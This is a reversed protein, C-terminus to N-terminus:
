SRRWRVRPKNEDQFLAGAHAFAKWDSWASPGTARSDAISLLYLMSLRSVDGVTEACRQIFAMDNLDRRLANEPIFLHYEVLFSLCAVEEDSLAMRAGIKGVVEAGEECHDRGSGKGIDHFLAALFLVEKMEVQEYILAEEEVVRRLEAVAQLSHRDVTYIHYVDHQALTEIRGFEPIYSALLGVELMAELVSFVDKAGVLISALAKSM